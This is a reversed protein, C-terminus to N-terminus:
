LRGGGAGRHPLIRARGGRGHAPRLRRRAHGRPAGARHRALRTAAHRGVYNVQGTVVATGYTLVVRVGTVQAGDAVQFGGIVNAGALEVRAVSLGKAGDTSASLRMKGPRLGGLRFAGDPNVGPARSSFPPAIRDRSEVWGYIRVQSLLRAAAARDSVGEIHVVGSVSAGRRVRVTIGAADSDVIEFTAPETYFETSETGGM